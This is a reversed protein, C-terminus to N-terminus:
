PIIRLINDVTCRWVMGSPLGATSTPITKMSLANVFTTCTRDSLINAGVIFSCANALINGQGGLIASYNSGTNVTNYQGGAINSFLAGACNSYGGSVTSFSNIADNSYGGSVVADSGSVINYRGSGVISYNGSATNGNGGGVVSSSGSATNSVGGGVRSYCFSATNLKGGGISACQGLFSPITNCIGGSIVSDNGSATNFCGGGVTARNGGATNCVGFVTQCRYGASATNGVGCRVTSCCGAGLVVIAPTPVPPVPVCTIVQDIFDQATIAGALYGDDRKPDKLGVPLLTQNANVSTVVRGSKVWSIFNLIDM